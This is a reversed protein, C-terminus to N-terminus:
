EKWENAFPELARELIGHLYAILIGYNVIPINNEKSKSIRRLVELRTLMCGGCHIVVDYDKINEPFKEGNTWSLDLNTFGKKKLLKPIKVTGIDECQRRHSCGEAILVKGSPSLSDLAHVGQVLTKLEGKFRAMLISFSTLPVNQPVIANVESFAQSDTIVLKPDKKLAALADKLEEVQVVIAQARYDLIERIMQVQPLILRGKPAGSDIPCVLVVIDGKEVIGQLLTVEEQNKPQMKALVELLKERDNRDHADVAIYPFDYTLLKSNSNTYEKVTRNKDIENIVILTPTHQDKLHTLWAYDDATCEKDNRLIYLAINMTELSKLTKEIRLTGLETHDDVGATDTLMVPGLPTIEMAKTVPDTTTGAIDSVIAVPQDTVMNLLTSKGANCCGFFGIHIRNAKPTQDM